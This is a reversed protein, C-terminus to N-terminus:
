YRRFEADQEDPRRGVVRDNSSPHGVAFGYLPVEREPDLRLLSSVDDDFFGGLNLGGLGLAAACLALNQGVHGAEFLIYRYGRDEYKWLSRELCAAIVVVAAAAELYPQGLFMEATLLKPLRHDHVVELGHHLPVYHYAGTLGEVNQAMVYLELPYLAGGSPVPRELFEGGFDVRDLVGYGAHLLSGLKSLSLPRDAFQRCSSRGAVVTALSADPLEPEPLALLEGELLEKFPPEEYMPPNLAHMNFPYRATGRHYTWAVPHRRSFAPEESM